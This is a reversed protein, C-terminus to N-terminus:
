CRSGESQFHIEAEVRVARDNDVLFAIDEADQETLNKGNDPSLVSRLPVHVLEQATAVDTRHKVLQRAIPDEENMQFAPYGKHLQVKIQRAGVEMVSQIGEQNASIYIQVVHITGPTQEIENEIDVILRWVVQWLRAYANLSDVTTATLVIEAREKDHQLLATIAAYKMHVGNLWHHTSNSHRHCRASLHPFLGEPLSVAFSYTLCVSVSQDSPCTSPLDEPKEDRFFWPLLLEGNHEKLLSLLDNCCRDHM